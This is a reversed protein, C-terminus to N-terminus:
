FAGKKNWSDTKGYIQLMPGKNKLVYIFSSNQPNQDM